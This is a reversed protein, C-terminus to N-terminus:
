RVGASRDGSGWSVLAPDLPCQRGRQEERPRGRAPPGLLELVSAFAEISAITSPALMVQVHSIGEDAFAALGEAIAQPSGALPELTVKSRLHSPVLTGFVDDELGVLVCASRQLTAPDRGVEACAADLAARLRPIRDHRSRGFALWANWIDAHRAILRLMSPRHALCGVLIPPGGIRDSRPRLECDRVHYHAGDFNTREGRLLSRIIVLAEELRAVRHDFRFGFEHHEKEYSGAGLGLVLRGGGIEDVTDAMKALLAPNRFGIASVLPGIAVRRTVAALAALMSWCEWIGKSGGRGPPHLVLHDTVWIADFGIEDARRAMEALDVWRPTRGGMSEEMQPLLLGIELPRGIM